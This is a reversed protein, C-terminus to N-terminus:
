WSGAAVLRLAVAIFFGQAHRWTCSRELSRIGAIDLM